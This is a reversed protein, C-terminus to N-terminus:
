PGMFPNERENIDTASKYKTEVALMMDGYLVGACSKVFVYTRHRNRFIFLLGIVTIELFQSLM